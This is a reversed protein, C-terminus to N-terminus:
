KAINTTCGNQAHCFIGMPAMNFFSIGDLRIRVDIARELSAETFLLASDDLPPTALIWSNDVVRVSASVNFQGLPFNLVLAVNLKWTNNAACINTDHALTSSMRMIVVKMTAKGAQVFLLTPM